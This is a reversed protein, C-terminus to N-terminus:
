LQHALTAAGAERVTCVPPVTHIYPFLHLHACRLALTLLVFLPGQILVYPVFQTRICLHLGTVLVIFCSMVSAIGYSYRRELSSFCILKRRARMRDHALVSLYM